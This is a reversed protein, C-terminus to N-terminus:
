EEYLKNDIQLRSGPGIQYLRKINELSTQELVLHAPGYEPKKQFVLMGQECDKINLQRGYLTSKDKSAMGTICTEITSKIVTIDSAEGASVGKDGCNLMQCNELTIISGSFDVGDNGTERFISNRITGKCFDCDFGDSSTNQILSQDMEFESRVINLADESNNDLFRCDVIKVASEYFTVAGTLSWGKNLLNKLNRFVVAQLISAEQAQIIHLGQGTGDTSEIFIPTEKQGLARIAGQCIIAAGKQLDIHAAAAISLQYSPPVVLDQTLIHKGPGIFVTKKAEQWALSPFDAAQSAQLRNQAVTTQTAIHESIPSVFLSDWGPLQYFIYQASSPIQTTHQYNTHQYFQAQHHWNHISKFHGIQGAQQLHNWLKRVSAAGLYINSNLPHKNHKSHSSYAIVELPLIHTNELKIGGQKDRYAKLSTTTFPLLKSRTYEFELKFNEPDFQYDTFEGQIWELRSKWAKANKNWFSDWFGARTYHELKQIYYKSFLPDQMFYAFLSESELADIHAIGEALFHFQDPKTESFGDFGIPELKNIIPNYYFRYNHWVIGHYANMLDSIAYYTALKKLDFIQSINVQGQRLQDLLITAQQFHQKLLNNAEVDAQQFSQIDANALRESQPAKENYTIFGHHALQRAYSDWLGDENFKVIVGERRDRSEVLRKTFHEEYAYVGKSQGNIFLEVFDYSTTLIDEQEWLRHLLWEHLFYRAKPTHLSFTNMSRWTNGNSLKLRFSWKDGMLHDLWDGKLRVKAKFSENQTKINAKVWDDDQTQLIGKKLAADRKNQIKAWAKKDFNLHIQEIPSAASDWQELCVISLDDFYVESAGESFVYISIQSPLKYFPISLQIQHLSWGNEERVVDATYRYLEEATKGQIVLKGQAATNNKSWISVQYVDGARYNNLQTTLAYHTQQDNPLLISHKGSRAAKTTRYQTGSFEQTNNVFFDGEVEEGDWYILEAAPRAVDAVVKEEKKPLFLIILFLALMVLLSGLYVRERKLHQRSHDTKLQM